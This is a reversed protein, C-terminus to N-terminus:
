MAVMSADEADWDMYEGSANDFIGFAMALELDGGRNGGLRLQGPSRHRVWWAVITMIVLFAIYVTVDMWIPREVLLTQHNM